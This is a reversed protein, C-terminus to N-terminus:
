CISFRIVVVLLVNTANSSGNGPRFRDYTKNPGRHVLSLDENISPLQPDNNEPGGGSPSV